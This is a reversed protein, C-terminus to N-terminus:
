TNQKGTVHALLNFFGRKRASSIGWNVPVSQYGEDYGEGSMRYDFYGWGAYRDVAALMNNDGADFNFHDDENFLIPQGRYSDMDRCTDVMWRIRHPEAVGNGHLLLFDSSEVINEPPIAGGGMSTSVLLRGAPSSVRGKSISKVLEILEHARQSRIIDHQYAKVNVENAAEVLVHTYGKELLWATAHHVAQIVSTEDELRQDQGFYFYGLIVVMGLADAVDLIKELRDLYAQRLTGDSYFASNHWPQSKSYGQPSGGQLNITFALLGSQAWSPMAAIFEDTNRNADWPGDPYNWMPRTEPNLDDFIGQVMRSNMLLGAIAKGNYMQGEYTPIGNICFSQGQISVTTHRTQSM